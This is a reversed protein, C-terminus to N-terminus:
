RSEVGSSSFPTIKASTYVTVEPYHLIRSGALAMRTATFYGCLGKLVAIAIVGLACGPLLYDQITDNGVSFWSFDDYRAKGLVFDVALALPWPELLQIISTLLLTLFVSSLLMKQTRIAPWFTRLVQQHESKM